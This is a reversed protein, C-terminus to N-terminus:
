DPPPERGQRRLGARVAGALVRAAAGVLMLGGIMQIMTVVRGTQSQAVIDGFGVTAFTTLTFYLADTRTLPESFSGPSSHELVYYVGAFLVLYSALTAALAEVAKLRPWPSRMIARVEWLFVLTVALLGIVLLATTRGTGRRDLPLLYYATVLGAALFVIRAVAVVTEWRKPGPRRRDAAQEPRTSETRAAVHDKPAAAQDDM